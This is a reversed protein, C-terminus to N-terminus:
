AWRGPLAFDQASFFQSLMKIVFGPLMTVTQCPFFFNSRSSTEVFLPFVSRIDGRLIRSYIRRVAVVCVHQPQSYCFINHARRVPCGPLIEALLVEFQAESCVNQAVRSHGELVLSVPSEKTIRSHLNRTRIEVYKDKKTGDNLDYM